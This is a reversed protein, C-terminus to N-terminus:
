GRSQDQDAFWIAEVRSLFPDSTGAEEGRFAGKPMLCIRIGKSLMGGSKPASPKPLQIMGVGSAISSITVGM